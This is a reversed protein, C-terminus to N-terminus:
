IDLVKELRFNSSIVVPSCDPEHPLVVLVLMPVAMSCATTPMAVRVEESKVVFTAVSVSVLV